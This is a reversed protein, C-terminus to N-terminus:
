CRQAHRLGYLSKKLKSVLSIKDTCFGPPPKMYVKEDLDGHLFANHVDMQHVDWKQTEVVGLMAQVITMKVVLAFIETFDIGEVQTNGLAVLRTKFREITGNAKYKVHFIWKSGILKKGPPLEVMKWTDNDELAEVENGM